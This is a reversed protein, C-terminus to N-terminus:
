SPDLRNPPRTASPIAPRGALRDAISGPRPPAFAIWRVLAPSLPQRRNWPLLLLMRALPCYDVVLLANAGVFQIAHLPWLPGVSGAALLLLYGIRVQVDFARLSRRRALFHAVQVVNLGIVAGLGASWGAFHTAFLLTTCHWYLRQIRPDM